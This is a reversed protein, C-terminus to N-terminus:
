VALLFPTKYEGYFKLRKFQSCKHFPLIDMGNYNCILTCDEVNCEMCSICCDPISERDVAVPRELM